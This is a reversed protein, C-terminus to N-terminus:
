KVVKFPNSPKKPEEKPRNEYQPEPEFGLGAGNERAYIVEIAAMPVVLHQPNGGFRANFELQAHNISYQGVSQPAINLVIQDNQIYEEPVIVGYVTTNVVIYPTLDNDLIWDYMARFLYPRRATMASIDM